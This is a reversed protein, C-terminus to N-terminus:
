LQASGLRWRAIDRAGLILLVGPSLSEARRVLAPDVGMRAAYKALVAVLRPDALGRGVSAAGRREGEERPAISMRHLGVRSASPVVRRFAGMLAYVCASLCQGSVPGSRGGQSAFGAVIAASRLRRFAIGLEMSAVVNGGPSNIFIVSRLRQSLSAGRAFDIFAQPTSEEIVGDAVVVEPCKSGCNPTELSVTRFTMPAQESWSAVAGGIAGAAAIALLAALWLM